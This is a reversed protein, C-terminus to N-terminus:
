RGYPDSPNKSTICDVVRLFASAPPRSTGRLWHDVTELPTQLFIALESIGGLKAAARRFSATFVNGDMGGTQRCAATQSQAIDFM